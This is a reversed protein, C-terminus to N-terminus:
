PRQKEVIVQLPRMALEAFQAAAYTEIGLGLTDSKHRMADVMLHMLDMQFDFMDHPDEPGWTKVFARARDAFIGSSVEARMKANDVSM